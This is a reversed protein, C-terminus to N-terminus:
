LTPGFIAGGYANTQPSPKQVVIPKPPIFRLLEEKVSWAMKDYYAGKGAFLDTVSSEDFLCFPVAHVGYQTLLRKVQEASYVKSASAIPNMVLTWAKKTQSVSDAMRDPPTNLWYDPTTIVAAPDVSSTPAGTIGLGSPSQRSYLRAHVLLDLDQKDGIEGQMGLTALKRFPTTDANCLVIVRQSLVSLPQYFLQSELAQRRFDGQPTQGLLLDKLPQLAEAVKGMFRIYERPNTAMDPASVIYLAVLLPDNAVKPPVSDNAPKFARGAISKAVKELSGMNLSQKIGWGDRYILKPETGGMERDIEVVLCRAGSSLALRTAADEDFVGSSYPGLFGTLRLSMVSTNILMRQDSPIKSVAAELGEKGQTFGTWRNELLLTQSKQIALINDPTALQRSKQFAYVLAYICLGIIAVLLLFSLTKLFTPNSMKVNTSNM